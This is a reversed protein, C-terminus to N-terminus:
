GRRALGRRRSSTGGGRPAPEQAGQHVPAATRHSGVTGQPSWVTRRTVRRNPTTGATNASAAAAGARSASVNMKTPAPALAVGGHGPWDVSTSVTGALPVTEAQETGQRRASPVGHGPTGFCVLSRDSFDAILIEGCAGVM